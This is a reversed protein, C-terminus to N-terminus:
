KYFDHGGYSFQYDHVNSWVLGPLSEFYLAENDKYDGACVASLAEEAAETINAKALRNATSFQKRQFIVDHTSSALIKYLIGQTPLNPFGDYVVPTWEPIDVNSYLGDSTEISIVVESVTMLKSLISKGSLHSIGNELVKDPLLIRAGNMTVVADFHIQECYSVISREPRATAALIAIGNKRCRNFVDVTYESLSKDTRLLTRDLDTIIAKM